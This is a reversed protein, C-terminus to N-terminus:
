HQMGSEFLLATVSHGRRATGSSNWARYFHNARLDGGGLTRGCGVYAIRKEYILKRWNQDESILAAFECILTCSFAFHAVIIAAGMRKGSNM